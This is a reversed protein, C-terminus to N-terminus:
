NPRPAEYVHMLDILGDRYFFVMSVAPPCHFPDEPPNLQDAEIVTVDKSALVNTLPV